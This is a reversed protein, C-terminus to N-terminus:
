LINLQCWRLKIKELINEEDTDNIALLEVSDGHISMTKIDYIKGSLCIEHGNIKGKEYDTRSLTIKQFRAHGNELTQQM